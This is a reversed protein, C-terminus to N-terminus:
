VKKETSCLLLTLQIMKISMAACPFVKTGSFMISDFISKLVVKNIKSEKEADVLLSIASNHLNKASNLAFEARFRLGCKYPCRIANLGWAVSQTLCLSGLAKM